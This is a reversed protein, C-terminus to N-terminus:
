QLETVISSLFSEAEAFHGETATVRLAGHLLPTLDPGVPRYNRDLTRVSKFNTVGDSDVVYEVHLLTGSIEVIQTTLTM